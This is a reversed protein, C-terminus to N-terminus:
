ANGMELRKKHGPTEEIGIDGLWGIKPIHEGWM